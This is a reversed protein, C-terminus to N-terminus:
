EDYRKGRGRYLLFIKRKRGRKMSFINERGSREGHVLFLRCGTGGGGEGKGVRDIQRMKKKKGRRDALTSFFNDERAKEPLL